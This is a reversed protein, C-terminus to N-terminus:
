RRPSKTDRITASDEFQQTMPTYIREQEDGSIKVRKKAPRKARVPERYDPNKIVNRSALDYIRYPEPKGAPEPRRPEALISSTSFALIAIGVVFPFQNTKVVRGSARMTSRREISEAM